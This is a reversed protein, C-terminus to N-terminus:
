LLLDIDDNESDSSVVNNLTLTRFDNLTQTFIDNHVNPRNRGQSNSGDAINLTEQVEELLDRRILNNGVTTDSHNDNQERNIPEDTRALTADIIDSAIRIAADTVAIGSIINTIGNHHYDTSTSATSDLRLGAVGKKPITALDRKVHRRRTPDNQRHQIKADFDISYLYGAILITCTKDGRIYADEIDQSTRQDYQWWGLFAVIM